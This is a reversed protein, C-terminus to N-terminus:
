LCADLAQVGITREDVLQDLVAVGVVAPARTLPQRLHTGLLLGALLGVGAVVPEAQAVRSRASNGPKLSVGTTRM